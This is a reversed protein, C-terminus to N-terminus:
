NSALHQDIKLLLEDPLDDDRTFCQRVKDLLENSKERSPHHEITDADPDVLKNAPDLMVACGYVVRMLSAKDALELLYTLVRKCQESNDIDFNESDGTGNLKEIATPVTAGWRQTLADLANSLEMSMELDAESAKAMKMNGAKM